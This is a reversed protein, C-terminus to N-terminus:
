LEKKASEKRTMAIRKRRVAELTATLEASNEEAIYKKIKVLADEFRGIHPLLDKKNAIFLETWLPANIMAIRTLDEFSGGGFATIGTDEASEVLASAIVHCLQSTFAIKHDHAACDTETIRSFGLKWMLDKFFDLNETKNSPLPILIYNRGRFISPDANGFGEKESGAMPHGCIFDVDDRLYTQLEAVIEAKVGSIDTVISGSKFDARHKKLFRIADHPYLSIFVMDCKSLMAAADEPAFAADIIGDKLAEGLASANNDLAFIADARLWQGGTNHAIGRIARAFSGGMLGLGAFGYIKPQFNVNSM